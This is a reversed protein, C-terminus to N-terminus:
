DDEEEKLYRQVAINVIGVAKDLGYIVGVLHRYDAYNDPAGSALTDKIEGKAEEISRIIDETIL